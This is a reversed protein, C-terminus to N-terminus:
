RASRAWAATSRTASARTMVVDGPSEETGALLSGFMSAHRRGRAIAKALDGSSTMGGDAILPVDHELASGRATTSRPSRRFASAPSSVLRASRARARRGVKVGDVGADVLAEAAEGTAVNGAVLEVDLSTKLRRAMEVVAHSHGHATDLSSCTPARTSSRRRASSRTPASASRAGRGAAAGARGEDRAPLRDRKQIDKVTILGALRGDRTSSRSSRSRTGTSSRRPRARADDRGARHRPRRVDDAGLGARGDDREFRLDRNTLIGVLRGDADAIPVGSIHYRAM